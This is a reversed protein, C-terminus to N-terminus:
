HKGPGCASKSYKVGPFNPFTIADRCTTPLNVFCGAEGVLPDELCNGITEGTGTTNTNIFDKCICGLFSFKQSTLDIKTNYNHFVNITSYIKSM